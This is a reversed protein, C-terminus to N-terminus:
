TGNLLETQCVKNCNDSIFLDAGAGFIPGCNPHHSVAFMKKKIDFKRINLGAPCHLSFLFSDDSAVYRGKGAPSTSWPM